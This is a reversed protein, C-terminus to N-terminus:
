GAYSDMIGHEAVGDELLWAVDHELDSVRAGEVNSRCSSYPSSTTSLIVADDISSSGTFHVRRAPQPVFVSEDLRHRPV